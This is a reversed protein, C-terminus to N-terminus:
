LGFCGGLFSTKGLLSKKNKPGRWTFGRKHLDRVRSHQSLNHKEPFRATFAPFSFTTPVTRSHYPFPFLQSIQKGLRLKEVEVPTPKQEQTERRAALRVARGAGSEKRAVMQGSAEWGAESKQCEKRGHSVGNSNQQESVAM